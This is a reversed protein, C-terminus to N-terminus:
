PRAFSWARRCDNWAKLGFSKVVDDPDAPELIGGLERREGCRRLKGANQVGVDPV